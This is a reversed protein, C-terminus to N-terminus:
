MPGIRGPPTSPQAVNPMPCPCAPFPSPSDEGVAAGRWGYRVSSPPLAVFPIAPSCPIRGIPSAELWRPARRSPARLRTGRLVVHAAPDGRLAHGRRSLRTRRRGPRRPRAEDGQDAPPRSARHHLPGDDPWRGHRQAGPDIEVVGPESARAVLRDLNLHEPRVGDLPSLVGGLVHYRANVRAPASWRGSIPCTRWWWSSPRGIVSPTGASRAPITRISTAAPRACSSASTPSACPM